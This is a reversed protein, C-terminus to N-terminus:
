AVTVTVKVAVSKGGDGDSVQLQLVRDALLTNTASTSFTVSRILAQVATPTAGGKLAVSLPKGNTGGSVTGIVKRGIRIKGKEDVSIQGAGQGSSQIKLVDGSDAGSLVQIKLTGKNFNKSDPDAVTGAPAILLPGSQNTYDLGSGGMNVVPPASKPPDQPDPGPLVEPPLAQNVVSVDVPNLGQYRTDLSIASALIISYPKDTDDVHDDVGHVTVTQAINWNTPTFILSSVSVTGELLNSSVIPITVTSTPACTLTVTFTAIKGAESTVLGTAPTVTFGPPDADQSTDVHVTKNVAAAVGGTGASVQFQLVRNTDSINTASTSFTINRILAQVASLSATSKFTVVLPNGAKGGSWNGIITSGFRVTGDDAADIEGAGRGQRFIQLLDGSNAGSVFQVTLKGGGFTVSDPDTLSATPSIFKPGSRNIYDLDSPGLNLVPPQAGTNVHVAKTATNSSSGDALEYRVSVTRDLSSQTTTSVRMQIHRVTMQVMALTATDNFSVVLGYTTTAVSGITIGGYLISKGNSTTGFQGAGTGDSRISLVDGSTANQSINIVLKSGNLEAFPANTNQVTATSDLIVVQGNVQLTPSPGPLLISPLYDPTSVNLVSVDTPNLGSYKKDTSTVTGLVISYAKNSDNVHDNVGTVVVTQPVNWNSPTFVLFAMSITGEQTNSSSIPITVTSTPASNLFVKFSATGGAETTVLGSTPTVTIGTLENDLNTVSVDPPNSGNFRPDDSVVPSTIIQYAQNGDMLLDDVGTIVVTQPINWSDPTFILTSTSLIGEDINSSTLNFTVNSNPRSGLVVQFTATSGSETTILGSTPTIIVNADPPTTNANWGIDNLAAYDLATFLKRTGPALSPDMAVEQGGDTLGDQWHGRDGSLPPSGLGDYAATANPGTFSSGVVYRVFSDAEGFGILHGLEHMAASMFDTQNSGIGSASTGFYWDTGQSDFSLSGGWPGFDSPFQGAPVLAGAQGRAALTDEWAPSGSASFGGFAGEAVQGTPFDRGGVFVVISGQGISLNAKSTSRGTSPDLFTALWTNGGGPTIATLVDNLHSALLNGAQQLAQRKDASNFFNTADLSFDFNFSVTLLSRDELFEVQRYAMEISSRRRSAVGRASFLKGRLRQLWDHWTM